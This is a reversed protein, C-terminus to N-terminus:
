KGDGISAIVRAIATRLAEDSVMSNYDLFGSSHEKILERAAAMAQTMQDNNLIM